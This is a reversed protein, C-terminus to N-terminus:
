MACWSSPPPQKCKKLRHRLISPLKLQTHMKKRRRPTPIVATIALLQKDEKMQRSYFPFPFNRWIPLGKPGKTPLEWSWGWWTRREAFAVWAAKSKRPLCHLFGLLSRAYFLPFVRRQHQKGKGPTSFLADIIYGHPNMADNIHGGVTDLIWHSPLFVTVHRNACFIAMWPVLLLIGHTRMGLFLQGRGNGEDCEDRYRM